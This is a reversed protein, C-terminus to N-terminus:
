TSRHAPPGRCAVLITFQGVNISAHAAEANGLGFSLERCQEIDHFGPFVHLDGAAAPGDRAECGWFLSGVKRKVEICEQGASCALRHMVPRCCVREDLVQSFLWPKSLARDRCM